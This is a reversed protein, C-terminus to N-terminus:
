YEFKLPLIEQNFFNINSIINKSYGNLLFFEYLLPTPRLSQIVKKDTKNLSAFYENRKQKNNHDIYYFTKMNGIDIHDGNILYVRYVRNRIPSNEVNIVFM